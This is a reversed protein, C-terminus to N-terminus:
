KGRVISIFGLLIGLGGLVVIIMGVPLGGRGTNTTNNPPLTPVVLPAPQTFTPLRTPVVTVIFQSALTPDITATIAPKPTPPIEVVPLDGTPPLNLRQTYVWGLGTQVGPYVVEVWEGGPTRGKVIVSQGAMLVGINDYTMAPGSRVNSSPEDSKVTAVVGQIATGTVTPIAITPIQAPQSAEVTQSRLLVLTAGVLITAFLISFKRRM